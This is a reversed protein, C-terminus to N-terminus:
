YFVGRLRALHEDWGQDSGKAEKWLEEPLANANTHTLTLQTGGAQETLTWEVISEIGRVQGEYTFTYVLREPFIAELVDGWLLRPDDTVPNERILAYPQGAVLKAQGEHFWRALLDPETLFSWVRERSARVFITKVMKIEPM